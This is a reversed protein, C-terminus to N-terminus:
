GHQGDNEMGAVGAVIRLEIELRAIEVGMRLHRRPRFGDDRGQLRLAPFNGGRVIEAGARPRIHVRRFVEIEQRADVQAPLRFALGAVLRHRDDMRPEAYPPSFRMAAQPGSMRNM